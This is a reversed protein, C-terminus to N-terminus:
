GPEAALQASCSEDGGTSPPVFPPDRRPLHISFVCGQGEKSLIEVSGRLAEVNTRVVDLGVGRGSVDTVKDATSFGPLFILKHIEDDGLQAGSEALGREVAKALIRRRDLGRGDDRLTIVVSGDKQAARLLIRGARPKGAREREEPPEIGHDAANRVMHMLPDAIADVLRRDFETEEGETEFLIEKRSKRSLDRVLRAMKQFTVKVSVVRMSLAAEQLSRMIEGLQSVARLLRPNAGDQGAQEQRLVSEAIVLEGVLNILNDLRATCIKVTGERDGDQQARLAHAVDRAKVAQQEVLIEGLTRADGAAQRVLAREVDEAAAKGERVLIEGVKGEARQAQQGAIVDELQHVNELRRILDDYTEPLRMRGATVSNSLGALLVKLMDLAEFALDTYVGHMVLTGKRFRDFLTEAQHAIETVCSLGVFGAVGKITHFARFLTNVSERDGPDSELAMLAVESRQIHEASEACFEQLLALDIESPLVFDRAKGEPPLASEARRMREVLRNLRRLGADSNKSQQLRRTATLAQWALERVAEPASEAQALERLLKEVHLLSAGDAPSLGTVELAIQQLTPTNKDM